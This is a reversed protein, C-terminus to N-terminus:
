FDFQSQQKASIYLTIAAVKKGKRVPVVDIDLNGKLNAEQAARKLVWKNFDGFKEYQGSEVGLMDRLDDVAITRKGIRQYQCALEYLRIAYNSKMEKVTLLTYKTFDTYIGTSFRLLEQTFTVAVSNQEEDWARHQLFRFEAGRRFSGIRISAEFLDNAAEWLTKKGNRKDIGYADCWDDVSILQEEAAYKWDDSQSDMKSIVLLLLRKPNLTLKYCGSVLDNDQVVVLKEVRRQYEEADRLIALHNPSLLNSDDHSMFSVM